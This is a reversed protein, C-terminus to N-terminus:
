RVGKALALAVKAVWRPSVAETKPVTIQASTGLVIIIEPEAPESFLLTGAAVFPPADEEVRALTPTFIEMQGPAGLKRRWRYFRGPHFNERKCYAAVSLGSGEQDRIVQRAIELTWRKHKSKAM